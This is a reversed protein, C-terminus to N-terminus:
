VILGGKRQSGNPDPPLQSANAPVIGSTQKVYQDEVQKPVDHALIVHSAQLTAEETPFIPAGYPVLGMRVTGGPGPEMMLIAPRKIVVSMGDASHVRGIMDRGNALEIMVIKGISASLKKSAIM